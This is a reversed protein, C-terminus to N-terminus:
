VLGQKLLTVIYEQSFLCMTSFSNYIYTNTSARFLNREKKEWNKEWNEKAAFEKIPIKRWLVLEYKKKEKKQYKKEKKACFYIASYYYFKVRISQNPTMLKIIHLLQLTSKNAGDNFFAWAYAGVTKDGYIVDAFMGMVALTPCRAVAWKLHLVFDEKWMTMPFFSGKRKPTHYNNFCTESTTRQM